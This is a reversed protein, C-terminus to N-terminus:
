RRKSVLHIFRLCDQKANFCLLTRGWRRGWVTLTDVVCTHQGVHMKRSGTTYAPLGECTGDVGRM